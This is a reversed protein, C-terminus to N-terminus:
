LAGDVSTPGSLRNALRTRTPTTSPLCRCTQSEGACGVAGEQSDMATAIIVTMPPRRRRTSPSRPQVRRDFSGCGPTSRTRAGRFPARFAALVGRGPRRGFHEAVSAPPPTRHGPRAPFPLPFVATRPRDENVAVHAVRRARRADGRRLRPPRRTAVADIQRGIHDRTLSMGHLRACSSPAPATRPPRPCRRGARAPSASPRRRSHSAEPPCPNAALKGSVPHPAHLTDCTPPGHTRSRLAL